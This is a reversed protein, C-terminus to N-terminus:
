CNERLKVSLGKTRDNEEWGSGRRREYCVLGHLTESELGDHRRNRQAKVSATEPPCAM